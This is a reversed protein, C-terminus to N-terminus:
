SNVLRLIERRLEEREFPKTLHSNFGAKYYEDVENSVVNATLAIVPVKNYTDSSRIKSVAEVGDMNPMQIDMLVLDFSEKELNELAEFGDCAISVDAKETLLTKEAIMRNIANDEVLLILSM